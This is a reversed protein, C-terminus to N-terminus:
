KVMTKVTTGDSMKLITVGRHNAGVRQGQLNYRAVVTARDSATAASIGDSIDESVKVSNVRLEYFPGSYYNDQDNIDTSTRLGVYLATDTTNTFTFTAETKDTGAQGILRFDDPNNVAAAYVNMKLTDQASTLAYDVDVTVKAGPAVRLKPTVLIGEFYNYSGTEEDRSVVMATGDVHWHTFNYSNAHYITWSTSDNAFDSEFPLSRGESVPEINIADIHTESSNGDSFDHFGLYYLGDEAIDVVKTVKAYAPGYIDTSDTRFIETTMAEPTRATGMKAEFKQTYDPGSFYTRGRYFFSIEYKGKKLEVADSYAWDDSPEQSLGRVHSLAATNGDYDFWYSNDITWGSTGNAPLYWQRNRAADGFGYNYPTTQAKWHEVTSGMILDNQSDDGVPTAILGILYYTTDASLDAEKNFTYYVTDGPLVTATVTEEATQTFENETVDTGNVAAPNVFYKVKIDKQPTVGHNVYSITVKSKGLDYGSQKDLSVNNICLDEGDDVKFHSIISADNSGTLAFAFYWDGEPLNSLLHYGNLWGSNTIDSDFLVEKMASVDTTRGALLKLHSSGSRTYGSYYFSVRHTGKTIHIAPSILYDDLSTQYNGFVAAGTGDGLQSFTFVNGDANGDIVSWLDNDDADDFDTSYPMTKAAYFSIAKQLTDNASNGDSDTHCWVKLNMDDATTNQVFGESFKYDVTTGAAITGDYDEEVNKGGFSYGVTPNVIDFPSNNALAVTVNVVSDSAAIKDTFPSKIEKVALDPVAKVFNINNFAFTGYSNWEGKLKAAFSVKAPGSPKFFFFAPKFDQSNEGLTTVVTDVKYGDDIYASLEVPAGSAMYDFSCTVGDNAPFDIPKTSLSGMWNTAKGSMYFAKADDSWNWGMGWFSEYEYDTQATAENWVFPFPKLEPMNVTVTTTDNAANEDGAAKVYATLTSTTGYDLTVTNKLTVTPTPWADAPIDQDVNEEFQLVGDKMVGVKFHSIATTGNNTVGLVIKPTRTPSGVSTPSQFYNVQLDTTATQAVANATATLAIAATCILKLLLKNRM